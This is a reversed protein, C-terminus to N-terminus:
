ITSSLSNENQNSKPVNGISSVIRLGISVKFLCYIFKSSEEKDCFHHKILIARMGTGM